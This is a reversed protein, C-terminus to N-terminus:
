EIKKKREREYFVYLKQVNQLAVLDARRGRFSLKDLGELESAVRLADFMIVEPRLTKSHEICATDALNIYDPYSPGRTHKASYEAFNKLYLNFGTLKIVPGNIAHPRYFGVEVDNFLPNQLFLSAMRDVYHRKRRVMSSFYSITFKSDEYEDGYRGVNIFEGPDMLLWGIISDSLLDSLIPRPIDKPANDIIEMLESGLFKYAILSTSIRKVLGVLGKKKAKAHKMIRHSLGTISSGKRLQFIADAPPFDGDRVLIDFDERRSIIDEMLKLEERKAMVSSLSSYLEEEENFDERISKLRFIPRRAKPYTVAALLIFEARLGRLSLTPSFTSDIAVIEYEKPPDGLRLVNERLFRGLKDYIPILYKWARRMHITIKRARDLAASYIDPDLLDGKWEVDSM